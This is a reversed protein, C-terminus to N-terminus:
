QYLTADMSDNDHIETCFRYEKQQLYEFMVSSDYENISNSMISCHLDHIDLYFGMLSRGFVVCCFIEKTKQDALQRQHTLCWHLLHWSYGNALAYVYHCMAYYSIRKTHRQYWIEWPRIGWLHGLSLFLPPAFWEVEGVWIQAHSIQYIMAVALANVWPMYMYANAYSYIASMIMQIQVFNTLFNQEISLEAFFLTLHKM